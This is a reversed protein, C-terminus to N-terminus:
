SSWRAESRALRRGCAATRKATSSRGCRTSRWESSRAAIRSRRVRLESPTVTVQEYADAARYNVRFAWYILLADLGFFVGVPWAGVIYFVVGGAFSM